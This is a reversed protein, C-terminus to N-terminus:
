EYSITWREITTSPQHRRLSRGLEVSRPRRRSALSTNSSRPCTPPLGARSEGKSTGSLGRSGPRVAAM